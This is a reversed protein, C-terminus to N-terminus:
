SAEGGASSRGARLTTGRIMAIAIVLLVVGIGLLTYGVAGLIPAEAGIDGEVAVGSSADANMVVLSWRGDEVPWTISQSGSGVGSAIWFDQNAPPAAPASGQGAALDFGDLAYLDPVFSYSVGTLYREVAKTPGVGVFVEETSNVSLRADGLIAEPLLWDPGDTHVEMRQTVIAFADSSLDVTPSTVFGDERQTQDAWLLAGGGTMLGLSTLALLSGVVVSLTAGATWGARKAGAAPESAPPAPGAPVTISTGPENGGLDLRFPPYADTMLGAYAAVRIVWRNLGLLLDFLGHPYSGTFALSIGAVLTLIGILGFGAVEWHEGRVTVWAGGMLLGVILYHPIALLWWKVLVLGRSLKDPHDIELHVPYDPEDGLSFPPYRDTALAGYSYYAVRWSWRLVGVNFDFISRPYRGTFLISFFAIVSLVVFAAWLFTLVFYHPIVLLWKVLWLWRSLNDDLRAQVKVPYTAQSAM